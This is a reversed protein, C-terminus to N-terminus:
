ANSEMAAVDFSTQPRQDTSPAQQVQPEQQQAKAKRGRKKAPAAVKPRENGTPTIREQLIRQCVHLIAEAVDPDAEKFYAIVRTERSGRSNSM